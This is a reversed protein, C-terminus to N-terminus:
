NRTAVVEDTRKDFMGGAAQDASEQAPAAEVGTAQQYATQQYATQQYAGVPVVTPGQAQAQVLHVVAPLHVMIAAGRIKDGMHFSIQLQKQNANWQENLLAPIQSRLGCKLYLPMLIMVFFVVHGLGM